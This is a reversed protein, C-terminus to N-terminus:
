QLGFTSTKHRMNTRTANIAIGLLLSLAILSSGGRSVFPLPLGKVPLAGVVMAMNYAAQFSIVVTTAGMLLIGYRHSSQRAVRLGLFTFAMFLAWVLLTGVMGWEEAILALVFDTTSEPIYGFKLVGNGPGAGFWGGHRFADHAHLVQEPVGGSWSDLRASFHPFIFLILAGILLLVPVSFLLVRAPLGAFLMVSGSVVLLIAVSGVDPQFLVPIMLLMFVGLMKLIPKVSKVRLPDKAIWSSLLIPWLVQLFLSPQLSLPGVKIWRTAANATYGIGTFLMSSLLLWLAISVHLSYNRVTNPDLKMGVAFACAAVALFSGHRMLVSGSEGPPAASVAVLLGMAALAAVCGLFLITAPRFKSASTM